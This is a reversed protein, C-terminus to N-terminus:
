GARRQSGAKQRAKAYAIQRSRYWARTEPRPPLPSLNRWHYSPKEGKFKEQFRFFAAGPRHGLEEAIYALERYFLLKEASSAANVRAAGNADVRALDGDFVEFSEGRTRPQWGCSDCPKGQLRVASCEPCNTLGPKHGTARARHERNVAKRDERLSWSIPDTILGHEYTAGAHDLLLLGEKGPACRLGRGAMQRYLVLSKTPRALVICSVSPSDWGECLVGCNSIVEIEGSALKALLADREENPTEGDLHEAITGAERFRDRVHISHRVSACFVATPRGRALRLHHEVIDGVLQQTNVAAELESTVYDGQRVPVGRLDPRSPAYTQVPVLYGAAQLGPINVTEIMQEFVGGLGRGDARCPTATVGVLRAQPYRDIIARYTRAVVHHCEDVVILDPAADMELKRSQIVRRNFTPVSVVQTPLWTRPEFGAQIVGHAVGFNSLKDSAQKTLERRHVLVFARNGAAERRRILECFIQTKGSGTPSVLLVRHDERHAAEVAEVAERQYPRLVTADGSV